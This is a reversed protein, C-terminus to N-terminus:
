IQLVAELGLVLSAPGYLNFWVEYNCGYLLQEIRHFEDLRLDQVVKM